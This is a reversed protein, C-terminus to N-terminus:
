YGRGRGRFIRWILKRLLEAPFVLLACLFATLLEKGELPATRLITGGLYVFGIQVAAVAAMIFTFIKNKSLGRFFNLSDVRANFCNLVGAFIFMAFFGTLHYISDHSYRYASTFLGSKLFAVCLGVTFLGLLIIQNIMYGNLIPEDRKKPKEKMYEPLAPEGAFALGGLTDMIINIWLMQVVTVPADVGIFPGLMSIGVACMNMTLQLVIFKRISKFITRGYLVAKAISSLDNDLIIIDGAEKAVATGGGMAFGIDARRLAPADNIGDGTMGVVMDAEQAIRVLRSKDSPLSRAVVGIRPLLSRLRVDSMRALERGSLCIDVGDCLIGSQQAIKRATEPSDGTIMVVHIGAERLSRVSKQASPRVRDSLIAAGLLTLQGFDGNRPMKDGKCVLIVRSGDLCIEDLVSQFRVSNFGVTMGQVMGQRVHPLLVEAAGKVLVTGDSLRVASFKKKSDFDIKESVGFSESKKMPLSDWLAKDTGGGAAAAEIGPKYSTNLHASLALLREEESDHAIEGGTCSLYREFAPKGETLTGTKDTFLINMSGAAEIGVPKRVLVNDRVMRRINSSLVVAIMMPLGEPVAMVVVTLGLMFASLLERFVFGGDSLKLLVLERQFGSDIVFADFLSALAIVLAAIYGLRSVTAALKKLRLKLPSERTEEQIERSIEGLLTKDGVACVVAECEGSVVLCGGPLMDPQSPDTGHTRDDKKEDSHKQVERTEGTMASQDVGVEGFVVMADAPIKDGARLLLLDGVVIERSQIQVTKGDRRVRCLLKDSEKQLSEFAAEGGYESLTSIFTALLVSIAIGVSEYISGGRFAVALNVALAVLLVRIVPDGLNSIFCAFFSRRGRKKLLNEGYKERAEFVEAETLGRRHDGNTRKIGQKEALGNM